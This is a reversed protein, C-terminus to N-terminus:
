WSFTVYEIAVEDGFRSTSKVVRPVSNRFALKWFSFVVSTPLAVDSPRPIGDGLTYTMAVRAVKPMAPTKDLTATRATNNLFSFLFNAALWNRKLMAM